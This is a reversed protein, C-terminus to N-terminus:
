GIRVILKGDHSGDFLRLFTEPIRDFGEVFEESYKLKGESVWTSAEALFEPYSALHDLLNFGRIEIFRYLFLNILQPLHDRRDPLGNSGSGAITGNIVARGDRNFYEMLIEFMYDGVNDILGDMGDPLAHKLREAFDDAKYDVAEDVGLEKLFAVKKTGGAIGVVRYGRMKAIQAAVSGVAGAAATIVVTGGPKADLLGMSAWATM